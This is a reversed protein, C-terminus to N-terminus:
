KEKRKKIPRKKIRAEGWSLAARHMDRIDREGNLLRTLLSPSLGTYELAVQRQSIGREEALKLLEALQEPNWDKFAMIPAIIDSM